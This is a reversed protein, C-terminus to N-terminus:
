TEVEETIVVDGAAPVVRANIFLKDGDRRYTIEIVEDIRDDYSLAETVMRPIEADLLAPTYDGGVLETLECGYDDSYIVYRSRETKIAKIIFQRLAKDGDITSGIKGNEFDLAWTKSPLPTSSEEEALAEDLFETENDPTFAM